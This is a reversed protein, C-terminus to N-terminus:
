KTLNETYTKGNATTVKVQITNSESNTVQNTWAPSATNLKIQNNSSLDNIYGKGEGEGLTATGLTVASISDGDELTLGLDVTVGAGPTVSTISKSSETFGYTVVPAFNVLNLAGTVRSDKKDGTTYDTYVTATIPQFAYATKIVIDDTEAGTMTWAAYPNVAGTFKFAGIGAKDAAMATFTHTESSTDYTAKALLFDYNVGTTTIQKAVDGYATATLSDDDAKYTGPDSAISSKLYAIKNTNSVDTTPVADESAALTVGDKLVAKNNVTVRMAVESQNAVVFDKTYIQSGGLMQFPDVAMDM